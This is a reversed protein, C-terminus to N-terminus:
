QPPPAATSGQGAPEKQMPAPLPVRAQGVPVKEAGPAAAQVGQGAPAEEKAFAVLQAVGHAAPLKQAALTECTLKGLAAPSTCVKLEAVPMSYAVLVEGDPAGTNPTLVLLECNKTVVLTVIGVPPLPSVLM